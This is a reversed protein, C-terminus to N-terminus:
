GQLGGPRGLPLPEASSLEWGYLQAYVGGQGLLEGHRGEEVVRGQDVAGGKRLGGDAEVVMAVRVIQLTLQLAPGAAM